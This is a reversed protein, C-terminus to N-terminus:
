TDPLYETYIDKFEYLLQTICFLVRSSRGTQLALYFFTQILLENRSKIHIFILRFFYLYKKRLLFEKLLSLFKDNLNEICHKQKQVCIFKVSILRKKKPPPYYFPKIRNKVNWDQALLFILFIISQEAGHKDSENKQLTTM